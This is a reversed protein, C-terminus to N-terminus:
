GDSEKSDPDIGRSKKNAEVMKRWAGDRARGFADRTEKRWKRKAKKTDPVLKHTRKDHLKVKVTCTAVGQWYCANCSAILVVEDDGEIGAVKELEMYAHGCLPCKMKPEPFNLM